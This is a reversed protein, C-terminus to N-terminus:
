AAAPAARTASTASAAPASAKPRRGSTVSDPVESLTGWASALRSQLTEGELLEMVLFPSGDETEDDDIVRVVGPHEIANAAYGERVFRTRIDEDPGLETSLVKLAVRHGNRHVALYVTAMGGSGLVREIRYKGLTQGVRREARRSPEGPEAM